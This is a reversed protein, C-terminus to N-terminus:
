NYKLYGIETFTHKIQSKQLFGALYKTSIFMELTQYTNRNDAGRGPAVLWGSRCASLILCPESALDKFTVLVM